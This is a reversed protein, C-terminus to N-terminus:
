ILQGFFNELRENQRLTDYDREMKRRACEGMITRLSYDKALAEMAESLESVSRQPVLFGSRGADIIEPLGGCRTGVAAMGTAGAEKLVLLGSDRDGNGAVVCPALFVDFEGFVNPMLFTDIAGLFRVRNGVGCEAALKRLAGELPGKGILNLSAEPFKGAIKAFARIGFDFGKKEVMRGCMLFRVGREPRRLLKFRELDIGLRHVQIKQPPAGLSVLCNALEESAPLLLEAVEFMKRFNRAYVSYALPVKKGLLVGVDIGHFTVALPKKAKVAIPTALTGNLGFHAHIFRLNRCALEESFTGSGLCLAYKLREFPALATVNECPFRGSFDKSLERAWVFPEFKKAHLIQDYVFTESFPLYTGVAMAYPIKSM